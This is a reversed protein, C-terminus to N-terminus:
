SVRLKRLEAARSFVRESAASSPLATNLRLSLALLSPFSRLHELGETKVPPASLYSALEATTVPEDDM